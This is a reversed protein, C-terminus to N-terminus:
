TLHPYQIVFALSGPYGAPGTRSTDHFIAGAHERNAFLIPQLLRASIRV